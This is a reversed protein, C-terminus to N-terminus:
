NASRDSQSVLLRVSETKTQIKKVCDFTTSLWQVLLICLRHLLAKGRVLSIRQLIHNEERAQWTYHLLEEVRRIDKLYNAGRRKAARAGQKSQFSKSLKDIQHREVFCFSVRSFPATWSLLESTAQKISLSWLEGRTETLSALQKWGTRYWFSPFVQWTPTHIWSKVQVSGQNRVTQLKKEKRRSKGQACPTSECFELRARQRGEIHSKIPRSTQFPKWTAQSDVAKDYAGEQARMWSSLM